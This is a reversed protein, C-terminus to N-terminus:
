QTTALVTAGDGQWASKALSIAEDLSSYTMRYFAADGVCAALADFDQPALKRDASWAGALLAAVAEQVGLPTLGVPAADTRDLCLVTRVRRAPPTGPTLGLYRVRQGDPRVYAPRLALDPRWPALVKWAGDKVTAPFPLAMVRGDMQLAAIDDGDLRFGAAGLAVALTSKGAGPEGVLLLGEEAHSLTAVHLAIGDLAELALDTLVVKLAPAAQEWPHWNIMEGRLALGIRDPTGVVLLHKDCCCESIGLHAVMDRLPTFDVSGSFNVSLYLSGLDIGIRAAVPKLGDQTAIYDLAGADLLDDLIKTGDKGDTRAAILFQEVSMGAQLRRWLSTVFPEAEFLGERGPVFLLAVGKVVAM